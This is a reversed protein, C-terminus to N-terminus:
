LLKEANDAIYGRVRKRSKVVSQLLCLVQFMVELDHCAKLAQWTFIKSLREEVHMWRCIM